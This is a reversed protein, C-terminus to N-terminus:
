PSKEPQSPDKTGAEEIARKFAAETQKRVLNRHGEVEQPPDPMYAEDGWLVQIFPVAQLKARNEKDTVIQWLRGTQTDLLYQDSRFDSVQGFIFRGNPASLVKQQTPKVAVAEAAFAVSGVSFLLVFMLLKM